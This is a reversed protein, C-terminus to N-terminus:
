VIDLPSIGLRIHETFLCRIQAIVDHYFKGVSAKAVRNAPDACRLGSHPVLWRNSTSNWNRPMSWGLLISCQIGHSSPLLMIYCLLALKIRSKPTHFEWRQRYSAASIFILLVSFYFLGISTGSFPQSVCLSKFREPEMLYDDPSKCSSLRRFIVKLHWCAINEYLRPTM